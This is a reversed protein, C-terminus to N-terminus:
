TNDVMNIGQRLDGFKIPIGDRGGFARLNSFNLTGETLHENEDFQEFINDDAAARLQETIHKTAIPKALKMNVASMMDEEYRHGFIESEKLADFKLENENYEVDESQKKLFNRYVDELSENIQSQPGNTLNPQMSIQQRRTEADGTDFKGLPTNNILEEIKKLSSQSEGTSVEGLQKDAIETLKAIHQKIHPPITGAVFGGMATAQVMLEDLEDAADLIASQAKEIASISKKIQSRLKDVGGASGAEALRKLKEYENM